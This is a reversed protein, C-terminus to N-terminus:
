DSMQRHSGASLIELTRPDAEGGFYKVLSERYMPEEPAVEAFLTMCSRFKLDDPYGFIQQANGGDINLVLRTCEKLRAGLVPHEHYARAEERSAMAYHRATHSSGLGQIQPFVYWMWHSAKRGARLESLVEQMVPEQASIFRSLNFPDPLRLLGVPKALV